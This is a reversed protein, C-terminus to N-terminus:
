GPSALDNPSLAKETNAPPPANPQPPVQDQEAPKVKSGLLPVEHPDGTAIRRRTYAYIFYGAAAAIVLVVILNRIVHVKGEVAHFIAVFSDTFWFSIFFLASVGPIAYLSDALMFRSIPMHLVGSMIFIGARIGPLFRAGLLIRVGYEHFNQEVKQRKELPLVYKQFWPRDTLRRGGFRGLCYLVGDAVVVGAICVPWLIWWHPHERPAQNAAHGSLAGGTVVPLEEPIPFGFGAAVLSGFIAFYVWIGKADDL